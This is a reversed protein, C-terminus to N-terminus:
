ALDYRIYSHSESKSWGMVSLWDESHTSARGREQVQYCTDETMQNLKLTTVNVTDCIHM